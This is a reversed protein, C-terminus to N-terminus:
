KKFFFIGLLDIAFFVVIIVELWFMRMNSIENHAVTYLTDIERLREEISSRWQDLHFRERAGLYVRAL